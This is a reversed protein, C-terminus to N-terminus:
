KIYRVLKRKLRLLNWIIYMINKSIYPHLNSIKIYIKEKKSLCSNLYLFDALKFNKKYNVRLNNIWANKIYTNANRMLLDKIENDIENGSLINVTDIHLCPNIISTKTVMNVSDRYYIANISGVYFIKRIQALCRTWTDIDGGMTIKDEPFMGANLLTRKTICVVSTWVMGQGLINSKLYDKFDFLSSEKNALYFSSVREESATDVWGSTIMEIEPNEIIVKKYSKLHEPYWEDDADLFAVWDAKAEKIGLNRAAYGGPGPKDRHFVRIRPDTFKAVEANSNDTSPDCVIILEFDTFTQNLISNISRAIHPEKNYVPVVVSFFPKEEKM